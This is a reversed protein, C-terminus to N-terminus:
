SSRRVAPPSNVVGFKAPRRTRFGGPTSDVPGGLMRTYALSVNHTATVRRSWKNYEAGM